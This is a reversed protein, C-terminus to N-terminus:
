GLIVVLLLLAQLLYHLEDLATVGHCVGRRGALAGEAGGVAPCYCGGLGLLLESVTRGRTAPWEGAGM